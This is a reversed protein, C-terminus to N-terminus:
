WPWPPTFDDQHGCRCGRAQCPSGLHLHRAHRCLACPGDEPGTVRPPRFVTCDCGKKSQWDCRGRAETHRHRPHGCERCDEDGGPPGGDPM